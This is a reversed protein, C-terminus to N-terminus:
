GQRNLDYRLVVGNGDVSYEDNLPKFETGNEDFTPKYSYYREHSVGNSMISGGNVKPVIAKMAYTIFAKAIPVTRDNKCGAHFAGNDETIGFVMGLHTTKERNIHDVVKSAISKLAEMMLNHNLGKRRFSKKTFDGGNYIYTTHPEISYEDFFSETFRASQDHTLTICGKYFADLPGRSRIEDKLIDNCEQVNDMLFLKKYGIVKDKQATTDVTIVFLQQAQIAIKFYADRFMKPPVIVGAELCVEDNMLQVLGPLDAMTALRFQYSFVSSFYFFVTLIMAKIKNMIIFGLLLVCASM